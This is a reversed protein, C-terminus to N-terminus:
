DFILATNQLVAIQVLPSVGGWWGSLLPCSGAARTEEWRLNLDAWCQKLFCAIQRSYVLSDGKSGISKRSKPGAYCPTRSIGTVLAEYETSERRALTYILNMDRMKGTPLYAYFITFLPLYLVYHSKAKRSEYSQSINYKGM